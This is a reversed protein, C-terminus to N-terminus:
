NWKKVLCIKVIKVIKLQNNRQDNREPPQPEIYLINTADGSKWPLRVMWCCLIIVLTLVMCCTAIHSNKNSMVVEFYIYNDFM